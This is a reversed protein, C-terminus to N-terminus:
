VSYITPLTLHTYSVAYITQNAAMDETKEVILKELKVVVATNDVIMRLYDFGENDAQLGDIRLIDRSKKVLELSKTRADPDVGRDLDNFPSRGLALPDVNALSDLVDLHMDIRTAFIKKKDEFEQEVLKNLFKYKGLRFESKDDGGRNTRDRICM